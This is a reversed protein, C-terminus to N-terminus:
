GRVGVVPQKDLAHYFFFIYADWYKNRLKNWEVPTLTSLGGRILLYETFQDGAIKLRLQYDELKKGFLDGNRDEETLKNIFDKYSKRYCNAGNDDSKSYRLKCWLDSQDLFELLSKGSPDGGRMPNGSVYQYRNLTMPDTVEGYLADLSVFRRLDPRYYRARMHNLGNGDDMVGYEGVFRFPNVTNGSVTINGFPEYAYSDTVVGTSDTLALTNGSPDFHYYRHANGSIQAVLGEGYVYYRQMNNSGDAEALVSYLDGGSPDIVYRTTQGNNVRAMRRGDGDYTYTDTLVGAKTVKTILDQANYAYQIAATGSADKTVRGDLDHTIAKGGVKTLRNSSDYLQEVTKGANAPLLPLDLTASLPNGAGDLSVYDHSSIVANSANRNLLATLRGAADYSKKVKTGNGYAIDTIMGSADREYSTKHSLWDVLTKLRGADDYDYSVVKNGPYTLKALAGVADYAYAVPNGFADTVATLRNLEDYSYNTTGNADKMTKRNGNLDYTYSVTKGDPFTVIKLLDTPFYDYRTVKNGPTTRKTLNGNADYEFRWVRKLPDTLSVMRDLEDYGYITIQGKRDQTSQLNGNADYTVVTEVDVGNDQDIVKTMRGLADYEYRTIKGRADRKSAMQGATNYTYEEFNGLVDTVKILRDLADYSRTVTRGAADTETSVNGNVDYTYSVAQALPNIEQLVKGRADFVSNDSLGKENTVTKLRGMADYAFTRSRSVKSGNETVTYTEKTKRNQNDYAYTTVNGLPDKMTLLNDSADYSNETIVGGPATVKRVNGNADYTYTTLFGRKNREIKVRGLNDYTMESYLGKADTVRKLNGNADYTYHTAIQRANSASALQGAEDYSRTTTQDLPDVTIKPKGAATFESYLTPKAVGPRQLSSLPTLNTQATQATEAAWAALTDRNSADTIKTPNGKGDESYVLTTTATSPRVKSVPLAMEAIRTRESTAKFTSKSRYKEAYDFADIRELVRSRKDDLVFGLNNNVNAGNVGTTSPRTVATAQVSNGDLTTSAYVFSTVAGSPETLTKVRRKTDYTLTLQKKGRPDTFSALRSRLLPTSGNFYFYNHTNGRPNRVATLQGDSNYTYQVYRSTFDTVRTIRGGGDRTITYPRASADTAGSIRGASDHSFSLTNGNRDAINLWRGAQKATPAAFRYLLNGQTYLTFGGDAEQVLADFNGPNLAYWKKDMNKFFLQKRGDERPSIEILNFATYRIAMDLNFAWQGTLANYHRLLAFDPGKGSVSLDTASLHFNGSAVDVGRLLRSGSGSLAPNGVATNQVVADLCTLLTCTGNESYAGQLVGAQNFVGARFYRIGPYDLKRNATWVTDSTKSLKVHGGASGQALWGGKMDDFNLAIYYGAPLAEATTFTFKYPTTTIGSEVVQPATSPPPLPAFSQGGRV